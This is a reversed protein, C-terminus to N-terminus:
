ESNGFTLRRYEKHIAGQSTLTSEMIRVARFVVDFPQFSITEFANKLNEVRGNKKTRGITFHPTFKKQEKRVGYNACADEFLGHLTAIKDPTSDSGVWVVRPKAPNPFAGLTDVRFRFSDMSTVTKSVDGIAQDLVAPDIDAIFKLTVHIHDPKEWRIPFPHERLQRLVQFIQDLGESDPYLACFARM